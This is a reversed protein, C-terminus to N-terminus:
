VNYPLLFLIFSFIFFTNLFKFKLITAVYKNINIAVVIEVVAIANINPALTAASYKGTFIIIDKIFIFVRYGKSFKPGLYDEIDSMLGVNSLVKRGLFYKKLEDLREKEIEVSPFMYFIQEVIFCVGFTIVIFFILYELFDTM